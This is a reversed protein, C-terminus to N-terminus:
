DNGKRTRVGADGAREGPDLPALRDSGSARPPTITARGTLRAALAAVVADGMERTGVKTTGEAGSTPRACARRGARGQVAAEIRDAAAPQDLTYRLMM